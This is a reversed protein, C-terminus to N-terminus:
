TSMEDPRRGYGQERLRAYHDPTVPKGGAELALLVAGAVPKLLPLTPVCRPATRRLRAIAAGALPGELTRFVGGSLVFAFGEGEMGLRRCVAMASVGLEDGIRRLIRRAVADGAAAAALVLPTTARRLAPTLLGRYMALYLAAVNPQGTLDLLLATLATPEGRGDWARIVARFADIGIQHGGGSDGFAYGIDPIIVRAGRADRGCAGAGSGCNVAVGRGDVSGARLAAWVDNSLGIREIPALASLGAMLLADDDPTDDGALAFHLAAVDRPARRGAQCAMSVADAVHRVAGEIGLGRTQHNAGGGEGYGLVTGGADVLLARTGSSGGDVGLYREDGGVWSGTRARSSLSM